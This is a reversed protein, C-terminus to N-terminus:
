EKERGREQGENGLHPFKRTFIFEDLSTIGKEEELKEAKKDKKTEKKRKKGQGLVKFTFEDTNSM